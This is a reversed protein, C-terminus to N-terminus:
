HPYRVCGHQISGHLLHAPNLQRAANFACALSVQDIVIGIVRQCSKTKSEAIDGHFGGLIGELRVAQFELGATEYDAIGLAIM